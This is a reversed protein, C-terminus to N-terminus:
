KNKVLKKAIEDLTNRNQDVYYLGAQILEFINKQSTDDMDSSANKLQPMLRYYNKRNRPGLTGYIKTLLYNVTEANSSLLIDILPSIWKIKGANEFKEFTYSKFVEGTGISVLIIDNIDPYDPKLSDHLVESFPIKRAEAYASLAPNNAFVGGDILVFEQGYLSKIKAPEFYTPAASTARCVDKVFFNELSSHAEHSCFLKAKRQNIDYSTILCPKTLDKLELYKFVDELQKELNKQSIKENFLGFPNIIGEWFSVNFISNGKKAYLDLAEEVSFKANNTNDPFLLIATLLGGTSTGAILDFYDGIKANPNDIKQLQEEIYRLIVCTIIGRIGGGDLSLIRIKKAM